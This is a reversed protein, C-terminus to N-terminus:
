EGGKKEQEKSLEKKKEDREPIYYWLWSLFLSVIYLMFFNTYFFPAAAGGIKFHYLNEQGVEFAWFVIALSYMISVGLWFVPHIWKFM